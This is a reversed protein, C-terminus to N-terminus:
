RLRTETATSGSMRVGKHMDRDSGTIRMSFERNGDLARGSWLVYDHLQQGSRFQRGGPAIWSAVPLESM